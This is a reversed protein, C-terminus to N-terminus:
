AQAIERCPDQRAGAQPAGAKVKLRGALARLLQDLVEHLHYSSALSRRSEESYVATAAIRGGAARRVTLTVSIANVIDLDRALEREVLRAELLYEGETGETVPLGRGRALPLLLDELMARVEDEATRHDVSVAGRVWPGPGPPSEGLFVDARARPFAACSSLLLAAAALLCACAAAPGGPGPRERCGRGCPVIRRM